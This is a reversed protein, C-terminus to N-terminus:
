ADNGGVVGEKIGLKVAIDHAQGYLGKREGSLVKYVYKPAYGERKAWSDITLGLYSLHARAQAWRERRAKEADSVPAASSETPIVESAVSDSM